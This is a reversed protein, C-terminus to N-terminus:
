CISTYGGSANVAADVQTAVVYVIGGSADLAAAASTNPSGAPQAPTDQLLRRLPAQVVPSPMMCLAEFAATQFQVGKSPVGTFLGDRVVASLCHGACRLMACCERQAPVRGASAAFAEPLRRRRLIAQRPQLGSRYPVQPLCPCSLWTACKAPVLGPLLAALINRACMRGLLVRLVLVAKGPAKGSFCLWNRYGGGSHEGYPVCDGGSCHGCIGCATQGPDTCAGSGQLVVTSALYPPTVAGAAAEM